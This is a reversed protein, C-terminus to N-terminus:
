GFAPRTGVQTGAPRCQALDSAGTRSAGRQNQGQVRPVASSFTCVSSNPPSPSLLCPIRPTPAEWLALSGVEADEWRDGGRHEALCSGLSTMSGTGQMQGPRDTQGNGTGARLLRWRCRDQCTHPGPPQFLPESQPGRPSASIGTRLAHYPHVGFPTIESAYPFRAWFPSPYPHDRGEERSVPLGTAVGGSPAVGAPGGSGGERAGGWTDRRHLARGACGVGKKGRLRPEAIRLSGAQPPPEPPSIREHTVPFPPSFPPSLGPALSLSRAALSSPPRSAPGGVQPASARECSAQRPRSDGPSASLHPCMPRRPARRPACPGLRSRGASAPAGRDSLGAGLNCGGDWTVGVPARPPPPPGPEGHHCRAGLARADGAAPAAAGASRQGGFGGAGARGEGPGRTGEPRRPRHRLGGGQIM